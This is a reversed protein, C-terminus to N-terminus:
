LVEVLGSDYGIALYQLQSAFRCTRVPSPQQGLRTPQRMGKKQLRKINIFRPPNYFPPSKLLVSDLQIHLLHLGHATTGQALRYGDPARDVCTLNLGTDPQLLAKVVGDEISWIRISGDAGCVMLSTEDDM